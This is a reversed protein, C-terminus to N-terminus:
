PTGPPGPSRAPMDLTGHHRTGDQAATHVYVATAVVELERVVVILQGLGLGVILIVAPGPVEKVGAVEGYRAALHGFRELVEDCDLLSQLLVCGALESECKKKVGPLVRQVVALVGHPQGLTVLLVDVLEKQRHLM